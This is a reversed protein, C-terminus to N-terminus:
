KKRKLKLKIKPKSKKFRPQNEKIQKVSDPIVDIFRIGYYINYGKKKHKDAVKEAAEIGLADVFEQKWKVSGRKKTKHEWMWDPLKDEPDLHQAEYKLAEFEKEAKTLQTKLKLIKENLRILKLHEGSVKHRKPDFVEVEGEYHGLSKTKTKM